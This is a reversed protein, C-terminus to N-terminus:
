KFTIRNQSLKILDNVHGAGTIVLVVHDPHKTFYGRIQNIMYENREAVLAQFLKPYQKQFDRIIDTIMGPEKLQESMSIIETKTMKEAQVSQILDKQESDPSNDLEQIRRFTETIPRDILAIPIKNKAIVKIATMMEIGPTLGLLEGLEKQFYELLDMLSDSRKDELPSEKVATPPKQMMQILSNFRMKDLELMVCDPHLQNISEEVMNASEQAIHMTGLFFIKNDINQLRNLPATSL